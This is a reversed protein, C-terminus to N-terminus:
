FFRMLDASARLRLRLFREAYMSEGTGRTLGRGQASEADRGYLVPMQRCGHRVAVTRSTRRRLFLRSAADFEELIVM